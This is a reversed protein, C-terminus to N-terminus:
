CEPIQKIHGYWHIIAERFKDEIPAVWMLGSAVENQDRDQLAWGDSWGSMKMETISLM